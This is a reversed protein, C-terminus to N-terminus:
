LLPNELKSRPNWCLNSWRQSQDVCPWSSRLSEWFESKQLGCKRAYFDLSSTSKSRSANVKQQQEKANVTSQVVNVKTSKPNVTTSSDSLTTHCMRTPQDHLSKAPQLMRNVTTVCWLVYKASWTLHIKPKDETSRNAYEILMKSEQKHSQQKINPIFTLNCWAYFM